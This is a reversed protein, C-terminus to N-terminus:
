YNFHMMTPRNNKKYIYLFTWCPHKSEYSLEVVMVDKLPTGLINYCDGQPKLIPLCSALASEKGDSWEVRILKQKKKTELFSPFSITMAKFFQLGLKTWGRSQIKVQM